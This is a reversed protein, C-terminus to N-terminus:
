AGSTKAIPWAVMKVVTGSLDLEQLKPLPGHLIFRVLKGCGSLSISSIKAEEGGEDFSFSELLPPLGQPGLHELEVVM